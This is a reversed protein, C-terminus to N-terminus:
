LTYFAIGKITTRYKIYGCEKLVNFATAGLADKVYQESVYDEQGCMGKLDRHMEKVISLNKM